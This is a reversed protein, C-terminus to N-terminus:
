RQRRTALMNLVNAKVAPSRSSPPLCGGIEVGDIGAKHHAHSVPYRSECEAITAMAIFLLGSGSECCDSEPLERVSVGILLQWRDNGACPVLSGDTLVRYMLFVPEQQSLSPVGVEQVHSASDSRKLTVMDFFPFKLWNYRAAQIVISTEVRFSECKRREEGSFCFVPPREGAGSCRSCISSELGLRLVEPAQDDGACCSSVGVESRGCCGSDVLVYRLALPLDDLMSETRDTKASSFPSSLAKYQSYVSVCGRGTKWWFGRVECLRSLLMLASLGVFAVLDHFLVITDLVVQARPDVHQFCVAVLVQLLDLFELSLKVSRSLSQVNGFNSTVERSARQVLRTHEFVMFAVLGSWLALASYLIVEVVGYAVSFPIGRTCKREWIYRNHRSSGTAMFEAWDSSASSCLRICISMAECSVAASYGEMPGLMPGIAVLLNIAQELNQLQNRLHQAKVKDMVVIVGFLMAKLMHRQSVVCLGYVFSCVLVASRSVFFLLHVWTSYVNAKATPSIKMSTPM